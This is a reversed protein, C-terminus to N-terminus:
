AFINCYIIDNITGRIYINYPDSFYLVRVEGPSLYDSNDGDINSSGYFIDGTNNKHARLIIVKAAVSSSSLRQAEGTAAISTKFNSVTEQIKTGSENELIETIRPISM